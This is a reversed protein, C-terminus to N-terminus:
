KKIGQGYRGVFTILTLKVKLQSQRIEIARVKLSNLMVANIDIIFSQLSGIELSHAQCAQGYQFALVIESFTQDIRKDRWLCFFRLGQDEDVGM